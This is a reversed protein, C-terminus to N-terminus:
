KLIMGLTAADLKSSFKKKSILFDDILKLKQKCIAEIKEEISNRIVISWTNVINKQGIRYSRAKAQQLVVPNWWNECFIVNNAEILNLGESGVKYSIFLVDYGLTQDKFMDLTKERIVGTVDGDLILFKKQPMKTKLALTAIDIVKKFSTFVLTKEGPNVKSIIDIIAKMKASEIGATGNKNKVWTALGDTMEDLIQQSITYDKDEQEAKYKRSSEALITYPSVCIQRLRLFLTLVNSFNYSGILFGNYVKKTAGHYYDYIEKERGDLDIIITNDKIEPLIIGADKYDKCLIFEYLKNKEYINYNFQAPIIIQDYGCFRFQSYVDSSYNRLPTGSLCWKSKGYLCMMSYFTSSKPNAFRHSEDAIIRNWPIKFLLLGGKVTKANELSPERSARIGSRRNFQDFEFQRDALKYKKAIGMITEYTTIVIKYNKIEDYTISNFTKLESRHFYLFPCSDGFFKKIDRKWEYAVTKSCVVLNPFQHHESYQQIINYLVSYFKESVVDYFDKTQVESMCLSTATLTNHTVTFDDLLYRHNGDLVFGCYDGEGLCQLEFTTLLDNEQRLSPHIKKREILTPIENVNNVTFVIKPWYGMVMGSQTTMPEVTSYANFGLSRCLYLINKIMTTKKLFIEYCGNNVCGTADIIGALLRLRNIRSNLLYHKPIHKNNKLNNSKIFDAFYNGKIHYVVPQEYVLSCGYRTLATEFYDSVVTDPTLISYENSATDGLWFGLIYPDMELKQEPFDVRAKYGRLSSKIHYPLKIYDKVSIDLVMDNPIYIQKDQKITRLSLIHSENVKYSHGNCQIIEYMIETGTCTSLVTRPTSDDGILLDGTKIDKAKKIDGNWLLIPTDPHHCKGLGMTLALIGGNIGLRSNNERYKMWNIADAQHQYISFGKLLKTGFENPEEFEEKESEEDDSDEKESHTKEEDSNEEDSSSDVFVIKIEKKTTKIEDKGSKNESEDDSDEFVIKIDKKKEEKKKSINLKSFKTSVSKM